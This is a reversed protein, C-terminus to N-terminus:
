HCTRPLKIHFKLHNHNHQRSQKTRLSLSLYTLQVIASLCPALRRRSVIVSPSTDYQCEIEMDESVVEPSAVSLGKGGRRNLSDFYKAAAMVVKTTQNFDNRDLDPDRRFRKPIVGALAERAETENDRRLKAYEKSRSGGFDRRSVPEAIETNPAFYQLAAVMVKAAQTLDGRKRLDSSLDPLRSELEEKAETENDRRVQAYEIHRERATGGM